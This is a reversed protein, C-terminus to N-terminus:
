TRTHTPISCYPRLPSKESAFRFIILEVRDPWEQVGGPDLGQAQAGTAGGQERCQYNCYKIGHHPLYEIKM